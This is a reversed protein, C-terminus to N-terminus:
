QWRQVAGRRVVVVEVLAEGVGRYLTERRVEDCVCWWRVEAVPRNEEKRRNKKKKRRFHKLFL